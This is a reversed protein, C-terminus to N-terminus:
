VQFYGHRRVPMTMKNGRFRRYLLLLDLVLQIGTGPAHRVYSYLLNRYELDRGRENSALNITHMTHAIVDSLSENWYSPIRRKPNASDLSFLLKSLLQYTQVTSEHRGGGAQLSAERGLHSLFVGAQADDLNPLTLPHSTAATSRHLSGLERILQMVKTELSVVKLTQFYHHLRYMFSHHKVPHLTIARHVEPQKLDGSFAESGSSNHYLIHRMEYSWTCQVGAFRQVCRGLEVDEHSTHMNYLCDGVHPAVLALTSQSLIVGPGGMCFNEYDLLSLRGFEESNGKGTQGIFQLKTSNVSRLFKEFEDPRIYVDDDARMFFEFHDLFHDHMYKLMMFSKKQPPYSDDVGKLRIVPINSTTISTESTFFALKGPIHQAYTEYVAVARTDLYQQATMVGVFVLNKDSNHPFKTRDVDIVTFPDQETVPSKDVHLCFSFSGFVCKRLVFSIIFGFLIGVIFSKTQSWTIMKDSKPSSSANFVIAVPPISDCTSKCNKPCLVVTDDFSCTYPNSGVM